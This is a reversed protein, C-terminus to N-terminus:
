APSAIADRQTQTMRPILMGADTAVVDLMASEDPTTTNIGVNQAFLYSGAGSILLIVLIIGSVLTRKTNQLLTKM